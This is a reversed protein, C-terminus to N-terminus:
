FYFRRIGQKEIERSTSNPAVFIYPNMKFYRHNKGKRVIKKNDIELLGLEELKRLHHIVLSVRMDLIKALENTYSEKEILSRIIKLSSKNSLLHGIKMLAQDDNDIGIIRLRFEDEM